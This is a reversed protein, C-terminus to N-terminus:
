TAKYAVCIQNKTQVGDLEMQYELDLRGEQERFQYDLLTPYMGLEINGLPTIYNGKFVKGDEFFFHSNYSGTREMSLAAGHVSIITRTGEMGSLASEEYEITYTDGDHSYSGETILELSDSEAEGTRSGTISLLVRKREM